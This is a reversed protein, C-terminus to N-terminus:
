RIKQIHVLLPLTTTAIGNLLNPKDCANCSCVVMHLTSCAINFPSFTCADLSTCLDASVTVIIIIDIVIIVNSYIYYDIWLQSRFSFFIDRDNWTFDFSPLISFATDLTVNFKAHVPSKKKKTQKPPLCITLYWTSILNSKFSPWKWPLEFRKEARLTGVVGVGNSLILM